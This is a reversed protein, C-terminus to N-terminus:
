ELRINKRYTADNGLKIAIKEYDSYDVAILENLGLTKLQSSAVRSAFTELPLTVMPAGAWLVDMGTTHGNGQISKLKKRVFFPVFISNSKCLPTDLCVDAIQGRRVHEEKPAVSSFIVRNKPLGHYKKIWDHVHKEGLAPFRLLWIVSNPVAKLIKCWSNM